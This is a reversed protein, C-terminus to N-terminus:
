KEPKVLTRIFAVLSNIESDNIVKGWPPMMPSRGLSPGGEKIVQHIQTDSLTAMVVADTHNAPPVSMNFSNFGNGKGTKGHCLACYYQYMQEGRQQERNLNTSHKQPFLFGSTEAHEEDSGLVTQASLWILMPTFFVSCIIILIRKSMISVKSM